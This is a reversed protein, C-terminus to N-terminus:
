FGEPLYHDFRVSNESTDMWWNAFEVTSSAITLDKLATCGTFAEEM